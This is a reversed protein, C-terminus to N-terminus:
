NAFEAFNLAAPPRIAGLQRGGDRGRLPSLCSQDNRFEVAQSPIDVEDRAKKFATDIEDCRVVRMGVFEHHMQKCCEGLM